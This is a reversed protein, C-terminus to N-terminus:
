PIHARIDITLFTGEQGIYASHVGITLLAIRDGALAVRSKFQLHRFPSASTYSRQALFRCMPEFEDLGGFVWDGGHFYVLLSKPNEVSQYLRAPIDGASGPITLDEVQPLAPGPTLMGAIAAMQTRAAAVSGTWFPPMGSSTMAAILAQSQTALPM